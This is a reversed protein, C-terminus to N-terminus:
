GAGGVREAVLAAAPAIISAMVTPEATNPQQVCAQPTANRHLAWAAISLDLAVIAIGALWTYLRIHRTQNM